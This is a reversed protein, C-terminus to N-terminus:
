QQEEEPPPGTPIEGTKIENAIEAMNRSEVDETMGFIERRIYSNSFYRGIYPEMGGAVTLREKMLETTKLESYHSDSNYTFRMKPRLLEFDELSMVGTLSLQIKLADLILNTFQDRLRSIFKAFKVEDRTIEAQRGMNFGNDAQMRSPPVNLSYYLKQLMYEVDRMEGLNTGGPLTTVETGKGGEKRPLFFDEMIHFHDREERLNGTSQDYTLKNRYRKALGEIYQQAKQTPMNGVDVYFVRREPARSMRYVVAADELQRLMNLPRIAKQLYGVVRKSGADILGSHCYIISDMTLRVGSAGTQFTADKSQNTYVYFEDVEGYRPISLNSGNQIKKVNRIKKIKLPDISRLEKIGNQPNEEDIMIYFFLKSDVYWRRFLLHSDKAFNLLDLVREYEQYVRAKIQDPLLTKELDLKIPEQDEDLVIADNVIDEIAMDVEPFLSMSRYRKIFEEETKAGGSFDTYTSMFGGYVSGSDLTYSGDYSDPAVVDNAGSEDNEQRGITFGFLNIPM